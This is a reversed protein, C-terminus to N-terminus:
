SLRVHSRHSAAKLRCHDEDVVGRGATPVLALTTQGSVAFDHEDGGTEWRLADWTASMCMDNTATGAPKVM